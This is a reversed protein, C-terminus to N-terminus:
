RGERKPPEIALPEVDVAMQRARDAQLVMNSAHAEELWEATNRAKEPLRIVYHVMETAGDKPYLALLKCLKELADLKNYLKLTIKTGYQTIDQRIEQVAALKSRPIDKWDRYTVTDGDTEAFDLMNSFGIAELESAVREVDVGIKEAVGARIEMIRLQVEPRKLIQGANVGALERSILLDSRVCCDVYAQTANGHELWEHCFRELRLPLEVMVQSPPRRGATRGPLGFVLCCFLALILRM